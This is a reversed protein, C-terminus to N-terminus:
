LIVLVCHLLFYYAEQATFKNYRNQDDTYKKNDKKGEGFERASREKRPNLREPTAFGSGCNSNIWSIFIIPRM